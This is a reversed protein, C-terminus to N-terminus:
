GKDQKSTWIHSDFDNNELNLINFFNVNAPIEWSSIIKTDLIKESIKIEFM